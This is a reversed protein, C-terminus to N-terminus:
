WKKVDAETAEVPNQTVPALNATKRLLITRMAPSSGALLTSDDNSM